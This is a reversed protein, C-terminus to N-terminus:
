RRPTAGTEGAMGMEALRTHQKHQLRKLGRGGAICTKPVELNPRACTSFPEQTSKSM